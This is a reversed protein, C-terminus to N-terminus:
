SPVSPRLQVPAGRGLQSCQSPASGPSRTRVPFVPIPYLRVPVGRGPSVPNPRLQVPVGHGLQPCQSLVSSFGAPTLPDRTPDGGGPAPLPVWPASVREQVGELSQERFLFHVSGRGHFYELVERVVRRQLPPQGAPAGQGTGVPVALVVPVGG